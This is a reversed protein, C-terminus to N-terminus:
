KFAQLAEKINQKTGDSVPVLPLRLNSQMMGIEQLVYKVGAPNGETFLLHIGNLLKYHQTRAKYFNGELAANVMDTFDKTYCNAAVSIVGDMGIAM